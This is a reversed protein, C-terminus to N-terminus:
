YTITVVVRDAYAGPKPTTQAPVQGFIAVAQETGTGTGQVTSGASSGWPMSRAADTYLGYTIVDGAASTMRRAAPATGTRGNDLAVSYTTRSTCTLRLSTQATIAATIAGTTGFSLDAVTGTCSPQPKAQVVFEPQITATGVFGTCSGSVGLFATAYSFATEAASFVSNYDGTQAASQSGFLRAYIIRTVTASGGAIGNGIAMLPVTGLAPNDTAGWAVTRSSDQFLQYTLSTGAPGRMLRGAGSTGGSGEEISPCMKVATLVTIGTCTVTVTATVDIPTASLLNPTGFDVPTITASCTAAETRGPLALSVLLALALLVAARM